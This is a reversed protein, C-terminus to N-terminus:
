DRKLQHASDGELELPIVEDTARRAEKPVFSSPEADRVHELL